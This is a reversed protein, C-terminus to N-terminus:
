DKRYGTLTLSALVIFLWLQRGAWHYCDIIWHVGSLSVSGLFHKFENGFSTGQQARADYNMGEPKVATRSTSTM